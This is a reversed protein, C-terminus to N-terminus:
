GQQTESRTAEEGRAPSLRKRVPLALDAAGAPSPWVESNNILEPM